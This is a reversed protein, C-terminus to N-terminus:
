DDVDQRDSGPLIGDLEEDTITDTPDDTIGDVAYPVAIPSPEKPEARDPQVQPRLNHKRMIHRLRQPKIKLKAADAESVDGMIYLVGIVAKEDDKLRNM